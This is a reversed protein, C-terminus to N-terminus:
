MHVRMERSKNNNNNNNNDYFFYNCCATERAYGGDKHYARIVLLLRGNPPQSVRRVCWSCAKVTYRQQELCYTIGLSVDVNHSATNTDSLSKLQWREIQKHHSLPTRTFM